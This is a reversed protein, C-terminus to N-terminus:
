MMMFTIPPLWLQGQPGQRWLPLSPGKKQSCNPNRHHQLPIHLSRQPARPPAPHQPPITHLCKLPPSATDKPTPLGEGICITCAPTHARHTARDGPFFEPHTGTQLEAARLFEQGDGHEADHGCCHHPCSGEVEEELGEAAPLYIEM